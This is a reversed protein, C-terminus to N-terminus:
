REPRSGERYRVPKSRVQVRSPCPSTDRTKLGRQTTFWGVWFRCFNRFVTNLRKLLSKKTTVSSSVALFLLMVVSVMEASIVLLRNHLVMFIPVVLMPMLLALLTSLISERRWALPCDARLRAVNVSNDVEVRRELHADAGVFSRLLIGKASEQSAVVNACYTLANQEVISEGQLYLINDYSAVERGIASAQRWLEMPLDVVVVRRLARHRSRYLARVGELHTHNVRVLYYRKVLEGLRPNGGQLDTIIIAESRPYEEELLAVLPAPTEPYEVIASVGIHGVDERLMHVLSAKRYTYHWRAVFLVAGVLMVASFLLLLLSILQMCNPM